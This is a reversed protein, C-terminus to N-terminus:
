VQKEKETTTVRGGQWQGRYLNSEGKVEFFMIHVVRAGMELEFVEKGLNCIGMTLGGKYGPPIQGGFVYVGSRFLTSRPTMIALLNEPMNVSEVTKLALYENSQIFVKVIKGEEFKAILEMEPTAREEVGLFGKGNLKYLEGIRLDFGAGEPNKLERESLNEVLKKEKVLKLIQEAGLVM